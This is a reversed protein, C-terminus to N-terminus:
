NPTASAFATCGIIRGNDDRVTKAVMVFDKREPYNNAVMASVIFITGEESSPISGSSYECHMLDVSHGEIDFTGIPSWEEDLRITLGSPEITAINEGETTLLNIAHPTMNVFMKEDGKHILHCNITTPQWWENARIGM